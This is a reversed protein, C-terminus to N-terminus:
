EGSGEKGPEKSYPDPPIADNTVILEVRQNSRHAASDFALPTRRASDAASSIRLQNWKVGQEALAAAVMVAREYGLRYAPERGSAAEVSSCHGRVDIIWRQGKLKKVADVIVERSYSSLTSAGQEFQLTATINAFGTDPMAQVNQKQGKVGNDQAEGQEKKEKLRKVLPEDNSGKSDLTVPNGFADRISIIADAMPASLSAKGDGEATPGKAKEGVNMAFMIVFFGMQLLANDAFSVVWEPVGEEHEAHGGGGHGGHGGHGKKHGGEAHEEGGGSHEEHEAM